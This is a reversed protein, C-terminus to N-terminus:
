GSGIDSGGGGVRARFIMWIFGTLVLDEEDLVLAAAAVAVAELFVVAFAEAVEVDVM